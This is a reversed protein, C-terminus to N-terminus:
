FSTFGTLDVKNLSYVTTDGADKLANMGSEIETILDAYMASSGWTYASALLAPVGNVPIVFPSSSDGGQVAKGWGPASDGHNLYNLAQGRIYFSDVVHVAVNQEYPAGNIPRYPPRYLIPLPRPYPYLLRTISPLYTAYNAPLVSYPTIPIAADLYVLQVDGSINMQSQINASHFVGASDLWVVQTGTGYGIHKAFLGHRPSVLNIPFYQALGAMFSSASFDLASCWLAADITGVPATKSFTPNTFMTLTTADPTKGNAYGNITSAV